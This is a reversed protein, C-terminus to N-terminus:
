AIAGCLPAIAHNRAASAVRFVSNIIRERLESM